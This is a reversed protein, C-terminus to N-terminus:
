DGCHFSWFFPDILLYTIRAIRIKNDGIQPLSKFQMPPDGVRKPAIPVIIRGPQGLTPVGFDISVVGELCFTAISSLAWFKLTKPVRYSNTILHPIPHYTQHQKIFRM